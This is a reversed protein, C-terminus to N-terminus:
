GCQTTGGRGDHATGGRSNAGRLPAAEGSHDLRLRSKHHGWLAINSTVMESVALGAGLERCLQRFPKDTVGAMPALILNNKLIHTGIQM